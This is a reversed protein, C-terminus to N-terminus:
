GEERHKEIIEKFRRESAAVEPDEDKDGKVESAEMEKLSENLEALDDASFFNKDM